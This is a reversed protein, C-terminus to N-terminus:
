HIRGGAALGMGLGRGAKKIVETVIVDYKESQDDTLESDRLILLQIVSPAQRLISIAQRHSLSRLDRDNVRLIIDGATLRGDAAACGHPLVEHIMLVGQPQSSM